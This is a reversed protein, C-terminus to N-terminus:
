SDGDANKDRQKRQMPKELSAMYNPMAHRHCTRRYGGYGGDKTPYGCSARAECCPEDCIEEFGEASLCLPCGVIDDNKDFPSQAVLLDAELSIENCENCRCQKKRDEAM